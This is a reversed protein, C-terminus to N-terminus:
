IWEEALGNVAAVVLLGVAAGIWGVMSANAVLVPTVALLTMGGIYALGAGTLGTLAAHVIGPLRSPETWPIPEAADPLRAVVARAFHRPPEWRPLRRLADDLLRDTLEEPRM